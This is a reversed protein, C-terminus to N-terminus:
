AKGKKSPPYTMMRDIAEIHFYSMLQLFM